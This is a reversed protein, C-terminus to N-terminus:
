FVQLVNNWVALTFLLSLPRLNIRAVTYHPQEGLERTFLSLHSKNTGAKGNHVSLKLLDMEHELKMQWWLFFSCFFFIKLQPLSKDLSLFNEYQWQPLGLHNPSHTLPLSLPSTSSLHCLQGRQFSNSWWACCVCWKQDCGASSPDTQMSRLLRFVPLTETLTMLNFRRRSFSQLIKRPQTPHICMNGLTQLLFLIEIQIWLLM